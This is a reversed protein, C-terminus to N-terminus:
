KIGEAESNGPCKQQAITSADTAPWTINWVEDQEFPCGGIIYYIALTEIKKISQIYTYHLLCWIKNCLDMRVLYKWKRVFDTM